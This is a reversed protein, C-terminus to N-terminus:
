IPTINPSRLARVRDRVSALLSRPLAVRPLGVRPLAATVKAARSVKSLTDAAEAIREREIADADVNLRSLHQAQEPRRAAALRGQEPDGRADLAWGRAADEEVLLLDGSRVAEHGWFLAADAEHELVEREERM